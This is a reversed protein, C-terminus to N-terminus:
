KYVIGTIIKIYWQRNKVGQTCRIVHIFSYPEFDIVVFITYLLSNFNTPHIFRCRIWWIAVFYFKNQFNEFEAFESESLKLEIIPIDVWLPCVCRETKSSIFMSITM